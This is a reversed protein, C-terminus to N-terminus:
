FTWELEIGLGRGPQPSTDKRFSTHERIEQDLLNTGRLSIKLADDAWAPNWTLGANLLTYPSTTFERIPLQPTGGSGFSRRLELYANWSPASYNLTGSAKPAPMRPLEQGRTLDRGRIWDGSLELALNREADQDEWLPFRFSAELGSIRADRAVYVATSEFGIDPRLELFIFNDFSTQYGTLIASGWDWDAAFSLEFHEAQENSLPGDLDALFAAGIDGGIIVNGLAENDWFAYREVASPARETLSATLKAGFRILGPIRDTEWALSLSQSLTNTRENVETGSDSSVDGFEGRIGYELSFEEYTLKQTSYIGLAEQKLITDDTGDIQLTFRRADLRNTALHAGTVGHLLSDPDGNHLEARFETTERDFEVSNFNLGEDLVLGDLNQGEFQENQRFWGQAFQLSLQTFPGFNDEPFYSLEADIRDLETDISSQGFPRGTETGDFFFPIGYESEFRTVSLGFEFEDPIGFSAGVSYSASDHFSNELTGTPSTLDIRGVDFSVIRPQLVDEYEQTWARGPISLDGAQRQGAYAHFAWLGEAITASLSAHTEDGQTNYGATLFAKFDGEPVLTPRLRTITNVAGGIAGSGYRLASPGRHIQIAEALATDIAVGHDPSEQGLDLTGLGDLVTAVRFGDLGRIIPRSAGASYGSASVGPQGALTEGLTSRIVRDLKPGALTSTSGGGFSLGLDGNSFDHYLSGTEEDEIADAVVVVTGLDGDTSLDPGFSGDVILEPLPDNFNQDASNEQAQLGHLSACLILFFKCPTRM